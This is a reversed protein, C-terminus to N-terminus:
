DPTISLGGLGPYDDKLLGFILSDRQVDGCEADFWRGEKDIFRRTWSEAVNAPIGLSSAAAITDVVGGKAIEMFRRFEDIYKTTYSCGRIKGEEIFGLSRLVKISATNDTHTTGYIRRFGWTGFGVGLMIRNGSTAYGKGRCGKGIWYGLEAELGITKTSIGVMGVINDSNDVIALNHEEGSAEKEASLGIFALADAETYPYPFMGLDNINCAIEYDNAIAALRASDEGILSRLYVPIGDAKVRM